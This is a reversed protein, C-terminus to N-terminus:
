CIDIAYGVPKKTEGMEYAFPLGDPRYGVTIRQAERIKDWSDPLPTQALSSSALCLLVAGRFIHNLWM